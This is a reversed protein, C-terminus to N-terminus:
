RRRNWPRPRSRERDPDDGEFGARACDDDRGGPFFSSAGVFSAARLHGDPEIILTGAASRRLAAAADDSMRVVAFRRRLPTAGTMHRRLIEINGFQNLREALAQGSVGLGAPAIMYQSTRAPNRRNAAPAPRPDRASKRRDRSSTSRPDDRSAAMADSGNKLSTLISDSRNSGQRLLPLRPDAARITEITRYTLWILNFAQAYDRAAVQARSPYRDPCLKGPRCAACRQSRSLRFLARLSEAIMDGIMNEAAQRDLVPNPYRCAVPMTQFPQEFAQSQVCSFAADIVSCAVLQQIDSPRPQSATAASSESDSM